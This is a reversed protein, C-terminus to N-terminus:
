IFYYLHISIIGEYNKHKGILGDSPIRTIRGNQIIHPTSIPTNNNHEDSMVGITDQSKWAPRSALSAAVNLLSGLRSQSNMKSIRLQNGKLALNKNLYEKSSDPISSYSRRTSVTMETTPLHYKNYQRSNKESSTSFQGRLIVKHSGTSINNSSNRNNNNDSGIIIPNNVNSGALSKVVSISPATTLNILHLQSDLQPILLQNIKDMVHYPLFENPNLLTQWDIYSPESGSIHVRYDYFFNYLLILQRYIFHVVKYHM